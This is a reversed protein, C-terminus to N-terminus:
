LDTWKLTIADVPCNEVCLGCGNCREPYMVVAKSESMVFVGHPCVEECIKCGICKENDVYPIVKM